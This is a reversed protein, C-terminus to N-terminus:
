RNIKCGTCALSGKIRVFAETWMLLSKPNSWARSHRLMSRLIAGMSEMTNTTTPLDLNPYDLFTRYYGVYNLFDRITARIRKTALNGKSFFKLSNMTMKFKQPNRAHLAYSVLDFLERRISGGKLKRQISKRRVRLKTLMHFHCLQLLWNNERAIVRMGNLNDVVIACTRRRIDEPIASFVKQWKSGSEKGPLLVPKLFVANKGACPKLATLYLVWPKGDFQFWVGDALLILLGEPINPKHPTALFKKLTQRFRYRYAPLKVQSKCSFLQSLSFHQLFVRHLQDIIFRHRCRGRKKPRISWTKKCKCCQRRRGGYRRIKAGCCSSKVHISNM